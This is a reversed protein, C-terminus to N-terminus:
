LTHDVVVAKAAREYCEQHHAKGFAELFVKRWPRLGQPGALVHLHFCLSVQKVGLNRCYAQHPFQRPTMRHSTWEEVRRVM